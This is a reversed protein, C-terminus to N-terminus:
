DGSDLQVPRQEVTVHMRRETIVLEALQGRRDHPPPVRAQETRRIRPLHRDRLAVSQQSRDQVGRDSILQDNRLGHAILPAPISRVGSRGTAVM